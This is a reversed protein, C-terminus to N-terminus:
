IVHHWLGFYWDLDTTKLQHAALSQIASNNYLVLYAFSFKLFLFFCINKCVCLCLTLFYPPLKFFDKNLQPSVM